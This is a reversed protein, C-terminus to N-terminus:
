SSRSGAPAGTAPRSCRPGGAAGPPPGPLRLAGAASRGRLRDAGGVAVILCATSFDPELLIPVAICAWGVLFPGVGRKLGRFHEQKKVAMMATWVVVALKAFDSPQVTVGVRLWRRAGNIPPAIAETFPLVLVVLLLVSVGMM